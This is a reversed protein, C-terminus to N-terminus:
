KKTKKKTDKEAGGKKKTRTRKGETGMARFFSFVNKQCGFFFFLMWFCFCDVTLLSWEVLWWKERLCFFFGFFFFFFAGKQNIKSFTAQDVAGITKPNDMGPVPKLDMGFFSSFVHVLLSFDDKKKQQSPRKKPKLFCNGFPSLIPFSKVTLEKRSLISVFSCQDFRGRTRKKQGRTRTDLLLSALLM